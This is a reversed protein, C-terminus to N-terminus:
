NKKEPYSICMGIQGYYGAPIALAVGTSCAQRSHPALVFTQDSFLDYGASGETARAPARASVTLLQVQLEM